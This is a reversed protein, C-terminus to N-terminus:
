DLRRSCALGNDGCVFGMRGLAKPEVCLLEVTAGQGDRLYVVTAVDPLTWPPYCPSFGAAEARSFVADFKARETTGFAVNLIGQDSLLYGAPRPRGKPRDYRVLEVLVNGANLLVSASRSGELGWLREHDEVHLKTGRAEAVGLAEVWFRYARDLDSVSLRVSNVTALATDGEQRGRGFPDDEMLEIVTGEPDRVCVRREGPSGLPESMLVGGTCMLRELVANLNPTHMGIVTYGIDSVTADARQLRMRPRQFEFLEVQFFRPQEVLWWVSFKAEPLGPVKAWIAGENERVEGSSRWAFTERYWHASRMIDTTSLAIQCLPMSDRM